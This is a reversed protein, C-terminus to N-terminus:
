NLETRAAVSGCEPLDGCVGSPSHCCCDCSRHTGRLCRLPPCYAHTPPPHHGPPHDNPQFTHAQGSGRHPRTHNDDTTRESPPRGSAGRRLEEHRAALPGVTRGGWASMGRRQSSSCSSSSPSSSFPSARTTHTDHKSDLTSRTHAMCHPRPRQKAGSWARPHAPRLQNTARSETRTKIRSRRRGPRAPLDVVPVPDVVPDWVRHM